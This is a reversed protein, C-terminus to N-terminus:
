NDALDSATTTTTQTTQQLSGGHPASSKKARSALMKRLMREVHAAGPPAMTRPTIPSRVKVIPKLHSFTDFGARGHYSGMGSQGVGGFPLNELGVHLMIDNVVVGGAATRTLFRELHEDDSGFYYAALPEPGANLEDIVEDITDYGHVTFLPGFVEESWIEMSEEAGLLATPPFSRGIADADLDDVLAVAQAGNTTADDLLDQLRTRHQDNIISTAGIDARQATAFRRCDELFEDVRHSPVFVRDPAVCYQGSNFIKGAVVTKAAAESKGDPGLVLPSKGGLELTVPTLNAAAARMVHRGVNTSGTFFLHNFPLETFRQSFEAEGVMISVESPDFWASAADHLVQATRPTLESVKCLARNGAALASALPAITLAVPFNWPSIIGVVGRPQPHLAASGGMAHFGFGAYRRRPGMWSKLRKQTHRIQGSATVAEAALTQMMSRRGYDARLAEALEVGFSCVMADLRSLRDDRVEFTPFPEARFAAVAGAFLKELDAENSCIPNGDARVTPDESVSSGVLTPEAM